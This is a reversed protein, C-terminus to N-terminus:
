AHTNMKRMKKNFHLRFFIYVIHLVIYIYANFVKTCNLLLSVHGKRKSIM